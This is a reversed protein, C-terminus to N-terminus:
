LIALRDLAAWAVAHECLLGIVAWVVDTSRPGGTL